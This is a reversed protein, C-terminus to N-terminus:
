SPMDEMNDRIICRFGIHSTSSDVPQPHRAAPRYRQCYNEACLHSGGKLVKRGIPVHPTCPDLSERETGGRPNAPVCCAGPTKRAPKPVAFWDVTWEWVNGIMDFLGYGNPPYTGVPSTRLFGDTMLNRHPFEGQWYNALMAGGPALEDGWAFEARELGGRAAFEWETETPLAKGAWRAYAQADAYAIHVVPHDWLGELSSDPGHPHRWDTGFSFQWWQRFDQLDVPTAAPMFLLSGPKAFEPPMGPYDAPDPAIEALTRHGTAEVFRAFARNTVPAEDMWFGDVRVTRVPREEPYYRESGMAFVGGPIRRMDHTSPASPAIMEFERRPM